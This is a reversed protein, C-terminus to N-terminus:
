AVEVQGGPGINAALPGEDRRHVWPALSDLRTAAVSSISFALRYTARQIGYGGSAYATSWGDSRITDILVSSTYSLGIRPQAGLIQDIRLIQNGRALVLTDPGLTSMLATTSEANGLQADPCAQDAGIPDLRMGEPSSALSWAGVTRLAEGDTTVESLGVTTAIAFLGTSLPVVALSRGCVPLPASLNVDAETRRALLLGDRTGIVAEGNRAGISLAASPLSVRRVLRPGATRDTIVWLELSRTHLVWVATGDIAADVAGQSIRWLAERAGTPPSCIGDCSRRGATAWWDGSFACLQGTDPSCATGDVGPSPMDIWGQHTRLFTRLGLYRSNDITWREGVRGDATLTLAFGDPTAHGSDLSIRSVSRAGPGLARISWVDDHVLGNADRGGVLLLAENDLALQLVASERAPLANTWREAQGTKLDYAWLDTRLGIGDRGGAVFLTSGFVTMSAGTRGRVEALDTPRRSFTNIAREFVDVSGSSLSVLAVLGAGQDQVPQADSPVSNPIVNGDVVGYHIGSPGQVQAGFLAWSRVEAGNDGWPATGVWFLDPEDPAAQTATPILTASEAYVAGNLPSRASRSVFVTAGTRSRFDSDVVIPQADFSSPRVLLLSGLTEGSAALLRSGFGPSGFIPPDSAGPRWAKSVLSGLIKHLRWEPRWAAPNLPFRAADCANRWSGDTDLPASSRTPKSQDNVIWTAGEPTEIAVTEHQFFQPMHHLVRDKWVQIIQGDGRAKHSCPWSEEASHPWQHHKDDTLFIVPHTALGKIDAVYGVSDPFGRSTESENVLIPRVVWGDDIRALEVTVYVGETDGEHAATSCATGGDKAYLFVFRVTILPASSGSGAGRLSTNYLAHPEASRRYDEDSDFRLEPAVCRAIQHEMEDDLGNGDEDVDCRLAQPMATQSLVPNRPLFCWSLAKGLELPRPPPTYAHATSRTSAVLLPLVAVLVAVFNLFSLRHSCRVARNSM